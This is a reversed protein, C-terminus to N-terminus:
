GSRGAQWQLFFFHLLPVTVGGFLLFPMLATALAPDYLVPIYSASVLFMLLLYGVLVSKGRLARTLEDNLAERYETKLFGPGFCVIWAYSLIIFVFGFPPRGSGGPDNPWYMLSITFQLLPVLGILLAWRLRAHYDDIQKRIIRVARAERPPWFRWSIWAIGIVMQAVIIAVLIEATAQSIGSKFIVALLLISAAVSAWLWMRARVAARHIDRERAIIEKDTQHDHDM